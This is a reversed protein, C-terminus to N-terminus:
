QLNLTGLGSSHSSDSEENAELDEGNEDVLLLEMAQEKSYGRRILKDVATLLGGRREDRLMEQLSM